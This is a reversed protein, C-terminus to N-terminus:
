RNYDVMLTVKKWVRVVRTNENEQRIKLIKEAAWLRLTLEDDTLLALFIAECHAFYPSIQFYKIGHEWESVLKLGQKTKTEWM